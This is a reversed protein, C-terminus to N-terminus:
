ANEVPKLLDAVIDLYGQYQPVPPIKWLRGTVHSFLKNLWPKNSKAQELSLFYVDGEKVVAFGQLQVEIAETEGELTTQAYATRADLDLEYDEVTAIGKLVKNAVWLALGKPTMKVGTKIIGTILSM